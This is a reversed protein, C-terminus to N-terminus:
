QIGVAMELCCTHTGLGNAASSDSVLYQFNITQGFLSADSPISMTTAAEGAADTLTFLTIASQLNVCINIGPFLPTNGRSLSALFFSPAAAPANSLEVDFSTVTGGTIDALALDSASICPHGVVGAANTGNTCSGYREYTAFRGAARNHTYTATYTVCEGPRITRDQWQNAGVYDGPGFALTNLLTTLAPDSLTLEDGSFAGMDTLDAGLGSYSCTQTCSVETLDHNFGGSGIAAGVAIDAGLACLDVDGYNFVNVVIPASSINTLSMSVIAVGETAGTSYVFIDQAASLMGRNDVDAWKISTRPGAGAPDDVTMTGDDSFPIEMTDGAIRYYWGNEFLLDAEGVSDATFNASPSEVQTTTPALATYSVNGDTAQASLGGALLPLTLYLYRSNM